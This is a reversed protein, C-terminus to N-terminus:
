DGAENLAGPRAMSSLPNESVPTLEAPSDENIVSYTLFEQAYALEGHQTLDLGLTEETDSVRLVELM